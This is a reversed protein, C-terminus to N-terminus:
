TGARRTSGHPSGARSYEPPDRNAWNARGAGGDVQVLCGDPDPETGTTSTTVQVTGSTEPITLSEDGSCAAAGLITLFLFSGYPQTRAKSM